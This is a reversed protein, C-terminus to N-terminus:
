DFTDVHGKGYSYWTRKGSVKSMGNEVFPITEGVKDLINDM